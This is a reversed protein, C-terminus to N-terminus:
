TSLPIMTFKEVRNHRKFDASSLIFQMIQITLHKQQKKTQVAFGTGKKNSECEM